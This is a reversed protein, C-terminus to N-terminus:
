QNYRTNAANTKIFIIENNKNSYYPRLKQWITLIEENYKAFNFLNDYYSIEIDKLLKYTTDPYLELIDDKILGVCNITIKKIGETLELEGKHENKIKHLTLQWIILNKQGISSDKFLYVGSWDIKSKAISDLQALQNIQAIRENERSDNSLIAYVCFIFYLFMGLGICILRQKRKLIYGEKALYWDWLIYKIWFLTMYVLEFVNYSETKRLELERHLFIEAEKELKILRTKAESETIGKSKLLLRAYDVADVQWQDSEAYVLIILEDDSYEDLKPFKKM